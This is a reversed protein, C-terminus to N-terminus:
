IMYQQPLDGLLHSWWNSGHASGPHNSTEQGRGLAKCHTNQKGERRRSAALLVCGQFLFPINLGDPGPLHSVGTLAEVCVRSIKSLANLPRNM